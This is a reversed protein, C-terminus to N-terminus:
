TEEQLWFAEQSHSWETLLTGPQDFEKRMVRRLSSRDLLNEADGAFQGAEEEKGLGKLVQWQLVAQKVYGLTEGILRVTSPKSTDGAMAQFIRNLDAADQKIAAMPEPLYSHALQFDGCAVIADVAQHFAQAALEPMNAQFQRFLELTAQDDDLLRNIDVILPFRDESSGDAIRIETEGALLLATERECLAQLAALAPPYAEALELWHHLAFRSFRFLNREQRGAYDHFHRHLRLAEEYEGAEQAELANQYIDRLEDM